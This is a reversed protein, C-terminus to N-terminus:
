KFPNRSQSSSSSPGGGGGGGIGDFLSNTSTDNCKLLALSDRAMQGLKSNLSLENQVQYNPSTTMLDRVSNIEEEDDDEDDDEDEEGGVEFHVREHVEEDVEEPQKQDVEMKTSHALIEETLKKDDRTEEERTKGSVLVQAFTIRKTDPSINEKMMEQNSSVRRPTVVTASDPTCTPQAVKNPSGGVGKIPQNIQPSSVSSIPPPDEVSKKATPNMWAMFGSMSSDKRVTPTSTNSVSTTLTAGVPPPPQTSSTITSAVTGGSVNESSQTYTPAPHYRFLNILREISPPYTPEREIEVASGGDKPGVVAAVSPASPSFFSTKRVRPQGGSAPLKPPKTTDPTLTDTQRKQSHLGTNTLTNENNEDSLKKVNLVVVTNPHHQHSFINESLPMSYETKLTSSLIEFTDATSDSLNSDDNSSSTNNFQRDLSEVSSLSSCSGDMNVLRSGEFNFSFNTSKDSPTHVVHDTSLSPPSSMKASPEAAACATPIPQSATVTPPAVTIVSKVTDVKSM